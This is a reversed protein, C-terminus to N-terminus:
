MCASVNPHAPFARHLSVPAPHRWGDGDSLAITAPALRQIAKEYRNLLDALTSRSFKHDIKEKDNRFDRLKRDAKKRDDTHLSERFLKGHIRVHAFYTGSPTYRYLGTAVKKFLSKSESLEEATSM